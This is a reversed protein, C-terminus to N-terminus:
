ALNRADEFRPRIYANPLELIFVSRSIKEPPLLGGLSGWSVGAEQPDLIQHMAVWALDSSQVSGDPYSLPVVRYLRKTVVPIPLHHTAEFGPCRTGRKQLKPLLPM